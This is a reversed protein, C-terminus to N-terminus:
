ALREGLRRYIQRADETPLQDIAEILVNLPLQIAVQRSFDPMAEEPEIEELEDWYDAFDHDEWFEVLEDLTQFDPIKSM